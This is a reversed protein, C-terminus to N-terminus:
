IGPLEQSNPIPTESNDESDDDEEEPISNDEEAQDEFYSYAKFPSSLQQESISMKSDSKIVKM